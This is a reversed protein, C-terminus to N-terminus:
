PSQGLVVAEEEVQGAEAEEVGEEEVAEKEAPVM